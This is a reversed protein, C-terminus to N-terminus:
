FDKCTYPHLVSPMYSNYTLSVDFSWHYRWVKQFCSNIHGGGDM